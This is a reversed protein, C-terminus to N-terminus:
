QELILIRAEACDGDMDLIGVSVPKHPRRPGASGPNVFLIEGRREVAPMHTHGHLLVSIEAAEPDLDLQNLDHVMYILQGEVEVADTPPFGHSWGGRDMNGAVARVEAIAALQELVEAPGVDGAHLILAVGQLADLAEPRVLGHTDSILGIRM